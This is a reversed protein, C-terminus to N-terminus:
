MAFKWFYGSSNRGPKAFTMTSSLLFRRGSSLMTSSVFAECYGARICMTPREFLVHRPEALHQAIRVHGRVFDNLGVYTRRSCRTLFVIHPRHRSPFYLLTEIHDHCVAVLALAVEEDETRGELEKRYQIVRSYARAQPRSGPLPRRPDTGSPASRGAESGIRYSVSALRPAYSEYHLGYLQLVERQELQQELLVLRGEVAVGHELIYESAM